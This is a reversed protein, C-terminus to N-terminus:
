DNLYANQFRYEMIKNASIRYSEVATPTGHTKVYDFFEDSELIKKAVSLSYKGDPQCIIFYGAYPIDSKEGEYVTLHKTIVMPMILKDNIVFNIAQSRGYEFWLAKEEKDRETLKDKHKTLHKKCEPYLEDFEKETYHEIKESCKYPFIILDQKKKNNGKSNRKRISKISLATHVVEKEIKCGACMYYKEDEGDPSFIFASNYLTAVANKVQFYDGFRIGVNERNNFIWELKIENRNVRDTFGTQCRTYIVPQNVDCDERCSFIISSTLVGTFVQIGEYDWIDTLFGNIKERLKKAYRNRAIGYPVIFSMRGGKELEHLSKEVFAYYYDFRGDSCFEFRERLETRVGKNLDHYTVYPPNSVIYDYKGADEKLYDKCRIDWSVRPLKFKAIIENLNNICNNVSEKDTEYAVFDQSLGISIETKTKGDQLASEIYRRIAESIIAGDGCSNELFRKGYLNRSYEVCDLLQKVYEIPTPIKCNYSM